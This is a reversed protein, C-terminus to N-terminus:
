LDSHDRRYRWVRYNTDPIRGWLDKRDSRALAVGSDPYAAMTVIEPTAIASSDPLMVATADPVLRLRVVDARREPSERDMPYSTWQLASLNELDQVLAGERRVRVMEPIRVWGSDTRAYAVETGLFEVREITKPDLRSLKLSALGPWGDVLERFRSSTIEGIGSRGAPKVYVGTGDANPSGVTVTEVFADQYVIWRARPPSIGYDAPDADAPLFERISPTRLQQLARNMLLPDLELGPPDVARWYSRSERVARLRTERTVVDVSDVIPSPLALPLPDRLEELPPYFDRKAGFERLLLVTVEDREQDSSGGESNAGSQASGARSAGLPEVIAYVQGGIPVTDGLAISWREGSELEATLRHRPPALGYTALDTAEIGRTPKLRSAAQLTQLIRTPDAEDQIPDVILYRDTGKVVVVSDTDTGYIIRDAHMIESPAAFSTLDLAEPERSRLRWFWISLGVLVLMLVVRLDFRM